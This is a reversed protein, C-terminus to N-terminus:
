QKNLLMKIERQSMNMFASPHAATEAGTDHDAEHVPATVTGAQYEEERQRIKTFQVNKVEQRHTEETNM